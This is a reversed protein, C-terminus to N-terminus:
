RQVLHGRPLTNPAGEETKISVAHPCKTMAHLCRGGAVPGGHEPAALLISHCRFPREHPSFVPGELYLLIELFLSPACAWVAERPEIHMRKALATSASVYM